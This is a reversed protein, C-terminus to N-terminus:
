IQYVVEFDEFVVPMDNRFEYGLAKGEEKFFRIHGDRWSELTDDEGERKCIDYTIDSFPLITIAITQIVCRPVGEWDTVISFDGVEPMREDELEYSWLSSATAKKQGILVLRLLENAWKETLEFHFVELYKTTKPRGTEKLFTKWFIDVKEESHKQKEM